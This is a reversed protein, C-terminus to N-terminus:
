RWFAMTVGISAFVHFLQHFYIHRQGRYKIASERDSRYIAYACMLLVLTFVIRDTSGIGRKVCMFFYTFLMFSLRSITADASHIESKRRNSLGTQGYKNDSWFILSCICSVFFVGALLLLWGADTTNSRRYRIAFNYNKVAHILLIIGLIAMMYQTYIGPRIRELERGM